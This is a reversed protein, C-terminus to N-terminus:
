LFDGESFNKWDLFEVNPFLSLHAEFAGRVKHYDGELCTVRKGLLAAALAVHMRDTVVNKFPKIAEFFPEVPSLHNGESSIDRNDKVTKAAQNKGNTTRLAFLTGSGGPVSEIDVWFALDPSSSCTVEAQQAITQSIYERAFLTVNASLEKPLMQFSSPLVIIQEYHKQAEIIDQLAGSYAKCWRGGGGFLLVANKPSNLKDVIHFPINYARLFNETGERILSDGWNGSNIFWDVTKRGSVDLIVDALGKSQQRISELADM